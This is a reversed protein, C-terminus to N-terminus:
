EERHSARKLSKLFRANFKCGLSEAKHVDEWCKEYDNKYFYALARNYYAGPYNPTKKITESFVAIVNDMEGENVLAETERIQSPTKNEKVGTVQKLLYGHNGASLWSERATLNPSLNYTKAACGSLALTSILVYVGSLKLNNM